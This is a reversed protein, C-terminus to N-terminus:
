ICDIEGLDELGGGPGDTASDFWSPNWLSPQQAETTPNSTPVFDDYRLEGVPMNGMSTDPVVEGYANLVRHQAINFQDSPVSRSFPPRSFPPPPISDILRVSPQGLTHSAIHSGAENSQPASLARNTQYNSEYPPPQDSLQWTSNAYMPSLTHSVLNQNYSPTHTYLEDFGTYDDAKLIAPSPGPPCRDPIKSATEYSLPRKTSSESNRKAESGTQSSYYAGSLNNNNNNNNNNSSSSSSNNNYTDTMETMPLDHSSDGKDNTTMAVDHAVNEHCQEEVKVCREDPNSSSSAQPLRDGLLGELFARQRHLRLMDKPHLEEDLIGSELDKVALKIRPYDWRVSSWARPDGLIRRSTEAMNEPPVLRELLNRLKLHHSLPPRERPHLACLELLHDVYAPQSTFVQGKCFESSYFLKRDPEASHWGPNQLCQASHKRADPVTQSRHQCKDCRLYKRAVHMAELHRKCTGKSSYFKDSKECFVCSYETTNSAEAEPNSEKGKLRKPSTAFTFFGGRKEDRWESEVKRCQSGPQDKELFGHPHFRHVYPAGRDSVPEPAQIPGESVRKEGAVVSWGGLGVSQLGRRLTSESAPGPGGEYTQGAGTGPRDGKNRSFRLSLKSSRRRITAPVEALGLPPTAVAPSTTPAVANGAGRFLAKIPNDEADNAFKM